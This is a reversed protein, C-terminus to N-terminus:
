VLQHPLRIKRNFGDIYLVLGNMLFVIYVNSLANNFGIPLELIVPNASGLYALAMGTPDVVFADETDVTSYTYNGVGENQASAPIPLTKTLTEAVTMLGSTGININTAGSDDNTRRMFQLLESNLLQRAGVSMLVWLSSVDGGANMIQGVAKDILAYFKDNTTKTISDGASKLQTRLGDYDNVNYVGEEDALTKGATSYNGQLLLAQNKRSVATIGSMVETNEAGVLNFNMGSQQSAYQLKLSIQRRSAIIAINSNAKRVFTSDGDTTTLDGLEGLTVAQGTATKVNYTHVLGNAPISSIADLAPFSRLYAERMLPEIDTRITPGGSNNASNLAKEILGGYEGFMKQSLADEFKSEMASQQGSNKMYEQFPTGESRAGKQLLAAIMGGLRPNSIAPHGTASKSRLFGHPDALTADSGLGAFHKNVSAIDEFNKRLPDVFRERTENATAAKSEVAPVEAGSVPTVSVAKAVEAGKNMQNVSTNLEALLEQITKM